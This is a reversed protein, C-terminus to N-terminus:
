GHANETAEAEHYRIPHHQLVNESFTSVGVCEPSPLCSSAMMSSILRRLPSYRGHDALQKFPSSNTMALLSAVFCDLAVLVM